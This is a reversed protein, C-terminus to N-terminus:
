DALTMLRAADEPPLPHRHLYNRALLTYYEDCFQHQAWGSATKWETHDTCDIQAYAARAEFPKDAFFLVEAKSQLCHQDRGCDGLTALAEAHFGRSAVFAAAKGQVERTQDMKPFQRQAPDHFVVGNDECVPATTEATAYVREICEVPIYFREPYVESSDDLTRLSLALLRDGSTVLEIGPADGEGDEHYWGLWNSISQECDPALGIIPQDFGCLYTLEALSKGDSRVVILHPGIQAKVRSLGVIYRGDPSVWLHTLRPGDRRFIQRGTARDLIRLPWGTQFELTLARENKLYFDKAAEPKLVRMTDALLPAVPEYKAVVGDGEASLKSDSHPAADALAPTGALGMLLVLSSLFALRPV